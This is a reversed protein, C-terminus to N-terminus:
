LEICSNEVCMGDDGCPLGTPTGVRCTGNRCWANECEAGTVCDDDSACSGPPDDPAPAPPVDSMTCASCLMSASMLWSFRTM